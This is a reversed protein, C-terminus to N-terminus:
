PSTRVKGLHIAGSAGMLLLDNTEIELLESARVIHFYTNPPIKKM